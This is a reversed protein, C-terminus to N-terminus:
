KKHNPEKGKFHGMYYQPNQLLFFLTPNTIKLRILEEKTLSQLAIGEFTKNKYLNPKKIVPEIKEVKEKNNISPAIESFLPTIEEENNIYVWEESYNEKMTKQNETSPSMEGWIWNIPNWSWGKTAKPEEQKEQDFGVACFPLFLLVLFLKIKMVM